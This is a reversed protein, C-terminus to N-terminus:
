LILSLYSLLYIGLIRYVKLIKDQTKNIIILRINNYIYFGVLDKIKSIVKFYLINKLSLFMLLQFLVEM